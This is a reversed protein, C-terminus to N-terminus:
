KLTVGKSPHSMVRAVVAARTQAEIAQIFEKSVRAFKAAPRNNTAVSLALERIKSPSVIM